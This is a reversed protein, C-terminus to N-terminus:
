IIRLEDTTRLKFETSLSDLLRRAYAEDVLSEVESSPVWAVERTESSTRLEGKAYRCAFVISVVNQCPSEYIGSPRTVLVDVGTEEKTERLVAEVLREGANVLGGPLQWLGNDARQILLFATASPDYIAAGVSVWLKEDMPRKYGM